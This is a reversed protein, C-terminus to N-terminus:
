KKRDRKSEGCRDLNWIKKGGSDKGNIGSGQTIPYKKRLKRKKKIVDCTVEHQSSLRGIMIRYQLGRKGKVEGGATFEKEVV